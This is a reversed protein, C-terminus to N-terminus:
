AAALNLAALVRPYWLARYGTHESNPAKYPNVTCYPKGKETPTWDAKKSKPDVPGKVQLGADQLAQNMAVASLGVTKGLETPTVPAEEVSNHALLPAVDVGTAAKIRDAAIARSMAVDTGFMKGLSLYTRGIVLAKRHSAIVPDETRAPKGKRADIFVRIVENTIEDANETESKTTVKLSAFEGLCYTTSIAGNSLREVTSRVQEPKLQNNELMRKILKRIMRPEAYGLRKGLELDEIMPESGHYQVQYGHISVINGM